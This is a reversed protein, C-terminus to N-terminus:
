DQHYVQRKSLSSQMEKDKKGQMKIKNSVLKLDASKKSIKSIIIQYITPSTLIIWKQMTHIMQTKLSVNHLLFNLSHISLPISHLVKEETIM